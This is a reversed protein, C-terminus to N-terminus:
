EADGLMCTLVANSVVKGEVTCQAKCKAARKKLKVIEAEIRIQDGPVVQRRFKVESIAAFFPVKNEYCPLDLLALCAFRLAIGGVVIRADVELTRLDIVTLPLLVYLLLLTQSLELWSGGGYLLALGASGGVLALLTGVRWFPMAHGCAPLVRRGILELGPLVAQWPLSGGCWACRGPAALISKDLAWCLLMRNIVLTALYGAFISSLLVPLLTDMM